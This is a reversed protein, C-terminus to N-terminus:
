KNIYNKTDKSRIACSSHHPTTKLCIRKEHACLAPIVVVSNNDPKFFVTIRNRPFTKLWEVDTKLPTNGLKMTIIMMM